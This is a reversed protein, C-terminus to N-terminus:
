VEKRSHGGGMRCSVFYLGRAEERREDAHADNRRRRSILAWIKPGDVSSADPTLSLDQDGLFYAFDYDGLPNNEARRPLHGPIM